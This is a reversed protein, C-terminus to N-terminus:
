KLTINQFVEDFKPPPTFLCPESQLLSAACAFLGSHLGWCVSSQLVPVPYAFVPPDRSNALRGSDDAGPESLSWVRDESM